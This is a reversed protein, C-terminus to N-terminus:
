DDGGSWMETGIPNKIGAVELSYLYEIEWLSYLMRPEEKGSCSETIWLITANSWM